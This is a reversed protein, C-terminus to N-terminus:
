RKAEEEGEGDQSLIRQLQIQDRQRPFRDNGAPALPRAKAISAWGQAAAAMAKEEDVKDVAEKVVTMQDWAYGNVKNNDVVTRYFAKAYRWFVEIGNLDPRQVLNRVIPIPGGPLALLYDITARSTHISANDWFIAWSKGRM